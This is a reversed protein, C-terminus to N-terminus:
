RIDDIFNKIMKMGYKTEISEPHFQLGFIQYNKHKIGMIEDSEKTVATIELCSPITKDSVLSHYRTAVFNRNIDNFLICNSFHKMNHVKGHCVDNANVISGGFNEIIAQHGLCIGLIPIKSYYKKIIKPMLGSQSPKGPGPSLLIAKIINCDLSLLQMDDNKIVVVDVYYKAVYQFLNYTFSDYNDVIVIL